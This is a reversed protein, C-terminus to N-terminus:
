GTKLEARLITCTRTSFNLYIILLLLFWSNIHINELAALLIAREHVHTQHWRFVPYILTTDDVNFSCRLIYVKVNLKFYRWPHDNEQWQLQRKIYPCAALYIWCQIGMPVHWWINLKIDTFLITICLFSVTVAYKIPSYKRNNAKLAYYIKYM